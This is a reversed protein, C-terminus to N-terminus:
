SHKPELGTADQINQVIAPKYIAGIGAIKSDGPCTMAHIHVKNVLDQMDYGGNELVDLVSLLTYRELAAKDIEM